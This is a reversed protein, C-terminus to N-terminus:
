VVVKFKMIGLSAQCMFCNGKDSFQPPFELSPKKRSKIEEENETRNSPSSLYERFKHLTSKETEPM